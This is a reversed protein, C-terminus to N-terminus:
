PRCGPPLASCLDQQFQRSLKGTLRNMAQVFESAEKTALSESRLSYTRHVVPESDEQICRLSLEVKLVARRNEQSKECGFVHVRGTLEFATDVNPMAYITHRFFGAQNLDRHLNQAVMVGPLEAWQKDRSSTIKKHSGVVVMQTRNYPASTSLDWIRLSKDLSHACAVTQLKPHLEFVLPQATEQGLLAICGSMLLCLLLGLVPRLGPM